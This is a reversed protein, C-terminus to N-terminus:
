DEVVAFSRERVQRLLLKWPFTPVQVMRSEMLPSVSERFKRTRKKETLSISRHLPSDRSDNRRRHSFSGVLPDCM